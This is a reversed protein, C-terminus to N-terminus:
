ALPYLLLWRSTPAIITTDYILIAFGSTTLTVTASSPTYIKNGASAAANNHTFSLTFPSSLKKIWLLRGDVGGTIGHISYSGLPSLSLFDYNGPDLEATSAPLIIQSSKNLVEYQKKEVAMYAIRKEMLTLRNVIDEM